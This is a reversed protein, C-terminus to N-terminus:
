KLNITGNGVKYGDNYIEIKYEGKNYNSEQHWDVVVNKVPEGQRLSVQKALTYNLPQGDYTNTVGSGYAANSLLNGDPALIRIYLDKVGNEAIRNEDIDFTIRFIDVRSARGTEKEKAGNRRLDIPTMRINSVHLVAGLRVKQQLAINDTVTSDREKTIVENYDSLKANEGELEAIREEYSKVKKNLTAILNRAKALDSATAQSNSLIGQIQKKLRAIEGDKNSVMSDLEANKTVLLDLRALAADYETRINDRDLTASDREMFATDRQDAVKSKSMFLYINIGLLLAIVGVFIWTNNKRPQQNAPQPTNQQNGQYSEQSM